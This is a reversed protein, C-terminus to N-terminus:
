IFLKDETDILIRYVYFSDAVSRYLEAATSVLILLFRLKEADDWNSAVSVLM